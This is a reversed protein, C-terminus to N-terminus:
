RLGRSDRRLELRQAEAIRAVRLQAPAARSLDGLTGVVVALHACKVVDERRLPDGVQANAEGFIQAEPELGADEELRPDFANAGGRSKGVALTQVKARVISGFM